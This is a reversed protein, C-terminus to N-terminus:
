LTTVLLATSSVVSSLAKKEKRKGAQIFPISIATLHITVVIFSGIRSIIETTLKKGCIKMVKSMRVLPEAFISPRQFIM